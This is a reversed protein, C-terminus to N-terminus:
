AGCDISNARCVRVPELSASAAYATLDAYARIVSNIKATEARKLPDPVDRFTVWTGPRIEVAFAALGRGGPGNVAPAAPEQSPGPPHGQATLWARRERAARERMYASVCARCWTRRGDKSAASRHFDAPAKEEKCRTCAKTPGEM